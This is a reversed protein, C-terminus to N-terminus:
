DFILCKITNITFVTTPGCSPHPGMATSHPPKSWLLRVGVGGMWRWNPHSGMATSHPPKSWLLRVGVGDMWEDGAPTPVWLLAIPPKSCLLRVGVGDDDDLGLWPPVHTPGLCIM